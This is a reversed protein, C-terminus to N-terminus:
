PMFEEAEIAAAVEILKWLLVGAIMVLLLSLILKM